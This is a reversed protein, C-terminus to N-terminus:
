FLEGQARNRLLEICRPDDHAPDDVHDSVADARWGDLPPPADLLARAVHLKGLWREDAVLPMSDAIADAPPAAPVLVIAFSAIGDDRHLSWVGAFAVRRVPEPHIWYAHARKKAATGRWAFWGDALVLCRRREFAVRVMPIAGFVAATAVEIPPGRRGAHGRRPALMGWRMVRLGDATQVLADAGRAINWRPRALEPPLGDITSSSYREM